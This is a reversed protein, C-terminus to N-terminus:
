AAATSPQKAFLVRRVMRQIHRRSGYHLLAYHYDPARESRTLLSRDVSRGAAALTRLQGDDIAVVATLTPVTVDNSLAIVDDPFEWLSLAMASGGIDVVVLRVGPAVEPTVVFRQGPRVRQARVADRVRSVKAEFEIPVSQM